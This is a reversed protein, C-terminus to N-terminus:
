RPHAGDPAEQAARYARAAEYLDGCAECDGIDDWTHAAAWKRAAEVLPRQASLLADLRKILNHASSEGQYTRCFALLRAERDSDM